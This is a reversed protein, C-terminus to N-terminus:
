RRHGDDLLDALGQAVLERADLALEVRHVGLQAVRPRLGGLALLAAALELLDDRALPARSVLRLTGVVLENARM